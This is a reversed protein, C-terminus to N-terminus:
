KMNLGWCRYAELPQFLATQMKFSVYVVTQHLLAKFGYVGLMQGDSVSNPLFFDLGCIEGKRPLRGLATLDSAINFITLKQSIDM